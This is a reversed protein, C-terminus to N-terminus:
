ESIRLEALEEGIQTFAATLDDGSEVDIYHGPSTACNQFLSPSGGDFTWSFTKNGGNINGSFDVSGGADIIAPDPVTTISCTAGGGAPAALAVQAGAFLLAFGVFLATATRALARSAKRHSNVFFVSVPTTRLGCPLDAM